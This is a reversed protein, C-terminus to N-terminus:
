MPHNESAIDASISVTSGASVNMRTSVNTSNTMTANLEKDSSAHPHPEGEATDQDINVDGFRVSVNNNDGDVDIIDTDGVGGIPNGTSNINGVAVSVENNDGDIDILDSDRKAVPTSETTGSDNAVAAATSSCSKTVAEDRMSADSSHNAAASAEPMSSQGGGAGEETGATGSDLTRPLDNAMGGAGLAVAAALVALAIGIAITVTSTREYRLSM